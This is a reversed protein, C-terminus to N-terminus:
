FLGKFFLVLHHWLRRFIGAREVDALAVLPQELLVEDDLSITVTGVQQGAAVPARLDSRLSMSADLRDHAGRPITLTMDDALGLNVESQKGMWVRAPMLVEGAAYAEYTEFFRFGYTLLKQTERARAQESSTGMVVAILRMGDREASSVLCYGAAETHGTKIGDVSPDRWLLLNRNQQTINNYTFSKERYLEYNEPYDNILARALIAMDRASTYMAEDPWGTANTFYSNTMGLRRAHQNMLDAFASESGAIHEAIAVAADNGSQIIIGKILDEVSVQTGERVFMRSGGMRWAKVSITVKDDMRLNGHAIERAAIYDTMIKTLSAPPLAEDANHEVIVQGSAADMLIYGSAEVQPPRPVLTAQASVTALTPLLCCLLTLLQRASLLHKRTM